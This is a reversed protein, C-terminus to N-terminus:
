HLARAFTRGCLLGRTEPQEEMLSVLTARIEECILKVSEPRQRPWIGIDSLALGGDLRITFGCLEPREAFLTVIRDEITAVVRSQSVTATKM